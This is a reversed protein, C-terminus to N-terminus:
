QGLGPLFTGITVYASGGLGARSFHADRGIYRLADKTIKIAYYTKGSLWVTAPPSEGGKGAAYATPQYTQELGVSWPQAM